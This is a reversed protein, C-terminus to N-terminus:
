KEKEASIKGSDSTLTYYDGHFLVHRLTGNFHTIGPEKIMRGQLDPNFGFFCKLMVQSMGIGAMADRAHWGREAIRVRAKPNKKDDGWLEHSQAWSGEYTVPELARYFRLAKEPYGMQVFADMTGAPWGDYAGLPGHDPRDSNKAAVDLLSQARMWHDTMLEQDVFRIMETKLTDSLDQAMYRGMFMFDLCHRVEITKHDPYLCNWVGNGAYLKLLYGKMETAQNRLQDAKAQDGATAYLDAMERLMWIYGANFSPVIQKYTPVCELLNWEDSGFDALKYMPDTYGPKGFLAMRQGNTAYHELTELITKGEVKEKLFAYDGTVALYSRVLQFLAWYNASYPNGVGKGGFNDVGYFKSPDVKMWSLINEKLQAPDTVAQVTSWETNDWFFSITAGWKPGGTLIVKKHQPLNTNLLYLMTLPGTYYVRSALTDETDLVPFCGSFLPNKPQFMSQWRLEWISKVQTFKEDFATTWADLQHRIADSNGYHMLYEIVKTEGAKLPLKWQATGGSHFTLLTDPTTKFTFGTIAPTETDHILLTNKGVATTNYKTANLIQM